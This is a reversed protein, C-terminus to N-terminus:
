LPRVGVRDAQAEQVHGARHRAVQGAQPRRRQRGRRGPLHRAVAVAGPHEPRGHRRAPFFLLLGSSRGSVDAARPSRAPVRVRSLDDELAMFEAPVGTAGASARRKMESYTSGGAQALNTQEQEIDKQVREWAILSKVADKLGQVRTGEALLFVLNNRYTRP